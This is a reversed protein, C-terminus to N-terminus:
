FIYNIPSVELLSGLPKNCVFRYLIRLEQQYDNNALKYHVLNVIKLPPM